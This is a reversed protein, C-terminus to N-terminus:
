LHSLASPRLRAPSAPLMPVQRRARIFTNILINCFKCHSCGRWWVGGTGCEENVVEKEQGPKEPSRKGPLASAPLLVFIPDDTSPFREPGKALIPLGAPCMATQHKYSYTCM